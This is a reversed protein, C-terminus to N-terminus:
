VFNIWVPSSWALDDEGMKLRVYYWQADPKIIEEMNMEFTTKLPKFNKLVGESGIIDVENIVLNSIAEIRLKVNRNSIKIESGMPHGNVSFRLITRNNTTGFVRRKWLAEFISKRTLEEAWVGMLGPGLIFRYSEPEKQLHHLSDGPRGDHDDGTGIMGLRFGKKLADILHSGKVEGMQARTEGVGSEAAPMESVGGIAYVEALREIEPDHGNEWRTTHGPSASHNVIILAKHNKAKAYLKELSNEYPASSRIIPGDDGPYIFNRHGYKPSTWEGGLFTVFSHDENFDNAVHKFYGWQADTIAETHDTLAFIDLFTENKAFWHIDEPLRIGDGFISHCHLNGWFLHETVKEEVIQIPNSVSEIGTSIDKVKIYGIGADNFSFGEVKRIGRKNYLPDPTEFSITTLGNMGNNGSVNVSGEWVPVVNDMFLIGRSSKNFPGNVTTSHREWVPNWETFFPKTIMRIGLSFTEGVKVISPATVQIKELLKQENNNKESVPIENAFVKSGVLSGSTVVSFTELFNRRKMLLKNLLVLVIV